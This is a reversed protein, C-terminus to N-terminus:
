RSNELSAESKDPFNLTATLGYLERAKSDYARAAIAEDSHRGLEYRVGDKKIRARWLHKTKDYFVGLFRSSGRKKNQMNQAHTVHRLNHLQNDHKIRNRHDTELGKPPYGVVDHHMYIQQIFTGNSRSVYGDKTLFWSYLLLHAFGDDLLARVKSNTLEVEIM